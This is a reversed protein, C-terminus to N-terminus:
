SAAFISPAPPQCRNQCMVSGESRGVVMKTTTVDTIPENWTNSWTYTIVRPPGSKMGFREDRVHIVLAEFDEM